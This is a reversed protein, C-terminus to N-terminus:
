RITSREARHLAPGDGALWVKEIVVVGGLLVGADIVVVTVFLILTAARSSPHHRPAARWGARPACM